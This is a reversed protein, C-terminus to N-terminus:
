TNDNITREAYPYAYKRYGYYGYYSSDNMNLCNLILGIYRNGGRKLIHYSRQVQPRETMRSRALLLTSDALTNLAVSDSVPLIPASDLVIFDYQSRFTQLWTQMAKSELLDTPNPPVAGSILIDLHEVGPFPQIPALTEQGALLNSLGPGPPLGAKRRLIGRRLDTDIILTKRGSQSLLAALNIACLSKGEGAISSTVLLVKPPADTQSLLLATRIARLAEVYTSQPQDLALVGGNGGNGGRTLELQPLVGLTAEKFMEDIDSTTNVKNDLTDVLLAGCCGCFWGGCLAIALYLPVNPSKPKASVRGPDVVTINSSRLGELVGAEKLRKLLDEYLVRSEDAEQRM